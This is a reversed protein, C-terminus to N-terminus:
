GTEARLRKPDLIGENLHFDLTDRVFKKRDTYVTSMAAKEHAAAWEAFEAGKNEAIGALEPRDPKTWTIRPLRDYKKGYLTRAVYKQEM